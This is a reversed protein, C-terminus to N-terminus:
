PLPTISGTEMSGSADYWDKQEGILDLLGNLFTTAGTISFLAGKDFTILWNTSAMVSGSNPNGEQANILDEKLFCNATLSANGTTNAPRQIDVRWTRRKLDVSLSGSQVNQDYAM